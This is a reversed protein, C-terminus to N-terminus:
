AAAAEDEVEECTDAARGVGQAEGAKRGEREVVDRREDLVVGAAAVDEELVEDVVRVLEEIDGVAGDLPKEVSVDM